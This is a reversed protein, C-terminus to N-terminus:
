CHSSASRRGLQSALEPSCDAIGCADKSNASVCVWWAVERVGETEITSEKFAWGIALIQGAAGALSFLGAILM